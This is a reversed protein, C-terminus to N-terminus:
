YQYRPLTSETPFIAGAIRFRRRPPPIEAAYLDFDRENELRFRRTFLREYWAIVFAYHQSTQM